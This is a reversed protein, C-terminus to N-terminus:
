PLAPAVLAALDAALRCALEEDGGVATSDVRSTETVGLGVGCGGSPAFFTVAEHGGVMQVPQIDEGVIDDLGRTPFIEVSVTYSETLTPGEHRYRCVTAAGIKKEKGDTLGLSALGPGDVLECPRLTALGSGDPPRGTAAESSSPTAIAITAPGAVDDGATATGQIRDACGTLLAVIVVAAAPM